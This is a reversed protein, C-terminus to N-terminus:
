NQRFKIPTQRGVLSELYNLNEDTHHKRDGSTIVPMTDHSIIHAKHHTASVQQQGAATIIDTEGYCTCFYTHKLGVNLCLGTGRIGITATPTVIRKNGKGFVSVLTGQLLRLSQSVDEAYSNRLFFSETHTQGIVQLTSEEGLSFADEGLVFSIISQKGTAIIDGAKITTNVTATQENIKVNGEMNRIAQSYYSCAPLLGFVPLILFHRRSLLLKDDSMIFVEILLTKTFNSRTSGGIFDNALLDAIPPTL